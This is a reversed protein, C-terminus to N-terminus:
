QLGSQPPLARLKTHTKFGTTKNDGRGTHSHTNQQLTNHKHKLLPVSGCHVEQSGPEGLAHVLLQVYVLELDEDPDCLHAFFVTM